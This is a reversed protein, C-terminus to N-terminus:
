RVRVRRTVARGHRPVARVVVSQVRRQRLLRKGRRTPVLRAIVSRRPRLPLSIRRVLAGSGAAHAGRRRAALRLRVRTTHAATLRVTVGSRLLARRRMSTPAEVVLPTQQLREPQVAPPPDGFPSDVGNPDPLDVPPDVPPDPTDVPPPDVPPPDVPPAVPWPDEDPLDAPRPDSAYAPYENPPDPPSGVRIEYWCTFSGWNGDTHSYQTVRVSFHYTGAADWTHSTTPTEGTDTEFTGDDDLDWEFTTRAAAPDVYGSADLAVSDGPRPDKPTWTLPPPPAPCPDPSFTPSPRDQSLRLGQAPANGNSETWLLSANGLPDVAAGLPYPRVRPCQIVARERGHLGAVSRRMVRAEGTDWDVWFFAANGVPDAAMALPTDALGDNIREPPLFDGGPVTGVSAYISGITASWDGLRQAAQWGVIAHGDATLAAMPPTQEDSSGIDIADGFPQGPDRVAVRVKGVITSADPPQETWAVIARGLADVALSPMTGRNGEDQMRRAEQAPGDSPEIATWASTGRTSDWSLWAFVAEGTESMGAHLRWVAEGIPDTVQQPDHWNGDRDRRASWLQQDNWSGTTFLVVADGQSNAAVATGPQSYGEYTSGLRHPESYTGDATRESVLVDEGRQDNGTTGVWAVYARGDATTAVSPPNDGGGLTQAETAPGDLPKEAVKVASTTGTGERWATVATGNPMVSLAPVPKGVWADAGPASLELPPNWARAAYAPPALAAMALAVVVLGRSCGRM